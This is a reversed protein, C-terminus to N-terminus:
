LLLIDFVNGYFLRPDILNDLDRVASLFFYSDCYVINIPWLMQMQDRFMCVNSDSRRGVVRGAMSEASAGCFLVTPAPAEHISHYARNRVHILM